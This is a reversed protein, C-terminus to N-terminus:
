DDQKLNELADPLPPPLTLDPESAIIAPISPNFKDILAKDMDVRNFLARDIILGKQADNKYACEIMELKYQGFADISTFYIRTASPYQEIATHRITEPYPLTQELFAACIGYYITGKAPQCAVFGLLIVLFFGGIWGALMVRARNWKPLPTDGAPIDASKAGTEKKKLFPISIKM